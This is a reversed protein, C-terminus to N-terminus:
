CRLVTTHQLPRLPDFARRSAILAERAVAPRQWLVRGVEFSSILKLAVFVMLMALCMLMLPGCDLGGSPDEHHGGTGTVAQNGADGHDTLALTSTGHHGADSSALETVPTHMAIIGLSLAAVVVWFVGARVRSHGRPPTTGTRSM